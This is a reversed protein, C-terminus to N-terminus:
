FQCCFSQSLEFSLLKINLLGISDRLIDLRELNFISARILNLRCYSKLRIDLETGYYILVGWISFPIEYCICVAIVILESTRNCGTIYRSARFQCCFSRAFEFSLLKKTPHRVSEQLIDLREMNFVSARILNM